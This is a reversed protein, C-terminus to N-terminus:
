PLHIFESELGFPIPTPFIDRHKGANTTYPTHQAGLIEPGNSSNTFQAIM